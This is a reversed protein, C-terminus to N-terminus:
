REQPANLEGRAALTGLQALSFGGPSTYDRMLENLSDLQALINDGTTPIHKGYEDVNFKVDPIQRPSGPVDILRGHETLMQSPDKSMVVKSPHVRTTSRIRKPDMLPEFDSGVQRPVLDGEVTRPFQRLVDETESEAFRMTNVMQDQTHLPMNGLWEYTPANMYTDLDEYKTQVGPISSEGVKTKTNYQKPTRFRYEVNPASQIVYKDVGPDYMAPYTSVGKEPLNTIGFNFSPLYEEDKTVIDGFRMYTPMPTKAFQRFGQIGARAAATAPKGGGLTAIDVADLGISLGKEWPAMQNWNYMTGAVPVYGMAASMAEDSVVPPVWPQNVYERFLDPTTM